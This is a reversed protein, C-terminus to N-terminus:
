ARGGTQYERQVYEARAEPTQGTMFSYTLRYLTGARNGGTRLLEDAVEAPFRRTEAYDAGAREEIEHIQQQATPLVPLAFASAAEAEAERM